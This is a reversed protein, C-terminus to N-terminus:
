KSIPFIIGVIIHDSSKGLVGLPARGFIPLCNSNATGGGGDGSTPIFSMRIDINGGGIGGFTGAFIFLLTNPRGGSGGGGGGDGGGGGEDGKPLSVSLSSNVDGESLKQVHVYIM